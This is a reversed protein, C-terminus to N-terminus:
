KTAKELPRNFSSYDSSYAAWQHISSLIKYQFVVFLQFASYSSVKSLVPRGSLSMSWIKTKNNTWLAVALNTTITNLIKMPTKVLFILFTDTTSMMLTWFKKNTNWVAQKNQEITGSHHKSKVETTQLNLASYIRIRCKWM